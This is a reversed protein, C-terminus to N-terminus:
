KGEIVLPAAEVSGDTKYAWLQRGDTLNVAFINADSSGIFVYGDDIAPSSKIKGETKFKWVLKLKGSLSGSAGGLLRQEGRFMPWGANPPFNSDQIEFRLHKQPQRERDKFASSSIIVALGVCAGAIIVVILATKTGARM